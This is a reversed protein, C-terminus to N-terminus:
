RKLIGQQYKQRADLEPYMFFGALGKLLSTSHTRPDQLFSHCFWGVTIPWLDQADKAYVAEPTPIELVWVSMCYVQFWSGLPPLVNGGNAM